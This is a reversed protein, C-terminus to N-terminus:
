HSKGIWYEDAKTLAQKMTRAGIINASHITWTLPALEGSHARSEIWKAVDYGTAKIGLDHDLSIWNIQNSKLRNIAADVTKVWIMGSVAGFMEQIQPDEPDRVDDLWLNRM